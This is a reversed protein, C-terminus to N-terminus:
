RNFVVFVSVVESLTTVAQVAVLSLVLAFRGVAPPMWKWALQRTFFVVAIAVGLASVWALGMSFLLADGHSKGAFVASFGLVVSWIFVGGLWLGTAALVSKLTGNM